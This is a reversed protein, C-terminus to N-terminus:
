KESFSKIFFLLEAEDKLKKMVRIVKSAQEMYKEFVRLVAERLQEFTKFYRLHTADRKTNKWLKEIPNFDPSFSPLRFVFLRGKREQNERYEKVLRSRHYPAGDEILIVPQKYHSLLHEHFQLYTEGNFKEPTEMNVFKGSQFEIAGFIKLGKRRGTTKVVPQKGMPAWTRALSGWWAFSVEDVFVIAADKEKATKLILPWTEEKWKRRAEEHEKTGIKDSIFKAKQFSLGMEKLLSCLYRPNYKVGFKSFILEAIMASNWVGCDFGNSEPGTVVMDYRKQKQTKSLKSKRGRGQFHLGFLWSFTRGAFEWLWNFVTKVSVDLMRAVEEQLHGEGIWILCKTIKYLRVNNLRTAEELSKRLRDITETSLHFKAEAEM